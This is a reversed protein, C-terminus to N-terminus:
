TRTPRASSAAACSANLRALVARVLSVSRSSLCVPSSPSAGQPLSAGKGLSTAGPPLDVVIWHSWENPKVSLDIATVAFSKTGAPAGSWFLAPSANSGGCRTYVQEKAIQAGEKIDPSSLELAAASSAFGAVVAAVLFTKM